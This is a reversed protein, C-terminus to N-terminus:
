EFIASRRRPPLGAAERSFNFSCSEGYLSTYVPYNHVALTEKGSLWRGDLLSFMPFNNKIICPMWYNGNNHKLQTNPNQSLECVGGQPLLEWYKAVYAMETNTM